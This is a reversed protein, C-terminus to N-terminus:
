IRPTLVACLVVGISGSTLVTGIARARREPPFEEVAYVMAGAMAGVIFIRSVFQAALFPWFSTAAGSAIGALSYGLVSVLLVPRRGIRDAQRVLFYGFLTGVNALAVLQGGQAISLDFSARLSPLTQSLAALEFGDWLAVLCLFILLRGLFGASGPATPTGPLTPTSM